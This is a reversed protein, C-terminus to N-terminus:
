KPTPPTPLPIIGLSVGAHCPPPTRGGIACITNKHLTGLFAVHPPGVGMARNLFGGAWVNGPRAKARGPRTIAHGPRTIAHGPRTIAHGPRAIAHGPRTIAHGPRTIAHGPKPIAHGSKSIAHGPNPIAHGPQSFTRAM